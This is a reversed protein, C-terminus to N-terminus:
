ELNYYKLLNVGAMLVLLSRDDARYTKDAISLVDTWNIHPTFKGAGLKIISYEPPENFGFDTFLLKSWVETIHETRELQLEDFPETFKAEFVLLKNDVTIVLDPKANFMGQM